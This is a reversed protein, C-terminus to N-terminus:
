TGDLQARGSRAAVGQMGTIAELESTAFLSAKGNEHMSTIAELEPAGSSSITSRLQWKKRGMRNKLALKQGHRRRRRWRAELEQEETDGAPSQM